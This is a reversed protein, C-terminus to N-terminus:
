LSLIVTELNRGHLNQLNRENNRLITDEDIINIKNVEIM